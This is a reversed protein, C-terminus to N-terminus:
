RTPSIGPSGPVRALSSRVHRALMEVHPATTRRHAPHPPSSLGSPILWTSEQPQRTVPGDLQVTGNGILNAAVGAPGPHVGNRVRTKDQESM